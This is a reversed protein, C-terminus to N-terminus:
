GTVTRAMEPFLMVTPGMSATSPVGTISMLGIISEIIQIVELSRAETNNIYILLRLTAPVLLGLTLDRVAEGFDYGRIVAKKRTPTSFRQMM